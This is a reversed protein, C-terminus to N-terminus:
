LQRVWDSDKALSHFLSYLIIRHASFSLSLQAKTTLYSVTIRSIPLSQQRKCRFSPFTSSCEVFLRNEYKLHNWKGADFRAHGRLLSAFICQLLKSCTFRDGSRWLESSRVRTRPACWLLSSRPKSLPPQPYGPGSRLAGPFKRASIRRGLDVTARRRGLSTCSICHKKRVEASMNM